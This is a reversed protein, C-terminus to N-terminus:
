VWNDFWMRLKYGEPSLPLGLYIPLWFIFALIILLIIILGIQRSIYQPSHLWNDVIWAGALIAFVSAGMYHYLFTCRTIKLWPLLNAGYNGVLFLMLWHSPSLSRWVNGRWLHLLLFLSLSAIALTSFWWLIPNGMAHVDYVIKGMGNPLPPYAPVLEEINRARQYFYAIPRGMILWSYWSSCYPHVEPGSGIKQHFSLIEQQMQWFGPQPNMLLHPVWTLCYTIMPICGLYGIIHLLNLTTFHTLPVQQSKGNRLQNSPQVIAKAWAFLWLLYIGLLFGLGNWKIGASLGFFIGALILIQWRPRRNHIFDSVRDSVLRLLRFRSGRYSRLHRVRRQKPQPYEQLALLVLLQGLLGFLVLYINNLGYRSEVLFLGDLAAFLAAIAGYSRRYTLHYAIAGIVVPILSGTLANFWRYSFTTRLSGTLTNSMEQGFPLHSGLWIGVALILQSLPPHANYVPEGLLYRNAFVPYYVEDFVLTNFQELRWFRLGLSLLFIGALALKFWPFVHLVPRRDLNM